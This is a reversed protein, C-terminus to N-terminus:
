LFNNANLGYYPGVIKTGFLWKKYEIEHSAVTFTANPSGDLLYRKVETSLNIETAAQEHDLQVPYVELSKLPYIKLSKLSAFPSPQHSIVEVSSSLLEVIELSLALSKVSHLRQLVECIKHVDTKSHPSSISLDVKELSHIGDLSLKPFYSGKLLLYNLDCASITLEGPLEGISVYEVCIERPQHPTDVIILNKLQPTDLLVSKVYWEVKKLTLNVFRSNIISFGNCSEREELVECRDLTLNKLNQCMTLISSCNDLSVYQLHLTTLAPLDWTSYSLGDIATGIMALHKLSKSSLLSPPIHDPSYMSWSISLQQVNHSFAYELIRKVTSEDTDEVALSSVDIKNNRGSLVNNVFEHYPSSGSVERSAFNLNPMSTWIFRWRSSLVSLRQQKTRDCRGLSVYEAPPGQHVAGPRCRRTNRRATHTGHMDNGDQHVAGPRCRRTNRRATHTGHMDNGDAVAIAMTLFTTQDYLAGAPLFVYLRFLTVSLPLLLLYVFYEVQLQRCLMLVLTQLDANRRLEDGEKQGSTLHDCVFCFSTQHLTMSISISGTKAAAATPMRRTRKAAHRTPRNAHSAAALLIDEGNNYSKRAEEFWESLIRHSEGCIIVYHSIFDDVWNSIKIKIYGNAAYLEITNSHVDPTDGPVIDGSSSKELKTHPSSIVMTEVGYDKLPAKSFLSTRLYPTADELIPSGINKRAYLFKQHSPVRTEAHVQNCDKCDCVVDMPKEAITALHHYGAYYSNCINSIRHRELYGRISLRSRGARIALRLVSTNLAFSYTVIVKTYGDVYTRWRTSRSNHKLRRKDIGGLVVGWWQPETQPAHTSPELTTRHKYWAIQAM